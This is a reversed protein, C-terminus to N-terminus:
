PLAYYLKYWEVFQRLGDQINTKPNFGFDRQASNIDAYTKMVDGAQLPQFNIKATKGLLEELTHIFDMLQETKHNGINYLAYPAEGPRPQPPHDLAAITGEVVDDIFTFNRLMDGNNYVEIEEGNLIAQCFIFAAMDPRGWPGYVTFFRLGTSPMKFLHSYTHAILEDARKTAAYLSIPHDTRDEVAFPLKTNAGYVSSSSAYVFHKLNKLQKAEEMLTVNGVLNATVYAYPDILSYRVGAQAALHIIGDIDNHERYLNQVASRNSIDNHVFYFNPDEQLIALRARKLTVDYYENLNDIAVVTDGRALLKKATHFGIFGAAGTVLVKM